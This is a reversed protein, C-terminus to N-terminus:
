RVTLTRGTPHSRRMEWLHRCTATASPAGITLDVNMLDALQALSNVTADHYAYCCTPTNLALTLFGEVSGGVRLVVHGLGVAESAIDGFCHVCLLKRGDARFILKLLGGHSTIAGRTTTALDCRGVVYRIGAARVQEETVDVGAVEPISYVAVSPTEGVAVGFILGCAHAAAARGQKMATSDLAPEVM